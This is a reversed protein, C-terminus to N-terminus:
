KKIKFFLFIIIISFGFLQYINNLNSTVLLCLFKLSYALNTLIDIQLISFSLNSFITNSNTTYFKLLVLNSITYFNQIPNIQTSSILYSGLKIILINIYNFAIVPTLNINSFKLFILYFLSIYFILHYPLARYLSIFSFEFLNTFYMFFGIQNYRKYFFNNYSILLLYCFIACYINFHVPMFNFFNFLITTNFIILLYFLLLVLVLSLWYNLGFLKLKKIFILIIFLIYLYMTNKYNLSNTSVFSHVSNFFNYRIGAILIIIFFIFFYNFKFRNINIIGLHIFGLVLIYFYVTGLEVLDWSWWGGWNLETQAWIAGLILAVTVTYLLIFVYKQQIKINLVLNIETNFILLFFLSYSLFLLLPHILVLGSSLNQPLLSLGIFYNTTVINEIIPYIWILNYFVLYGALSSLIFFITVLLLISLDANFLFQLFTYLSSEFLTSTYNFFYLIFQFNFFFLISVFLYYLNSNLLLVLTLLL